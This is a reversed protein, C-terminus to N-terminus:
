EKQKSPYNYFIGVQEIGPLTDCRMIHRLRLPKGARLHKPFPLTDTVQRTAGIGIGLPIGRADCIDLCLTDRQPNSKEGSGLEIWVKAFPCQSNVRAAVVVSGSATTDIDPFIFRLSENYRWGTDPLRQYASVTRGTQSCASSAILALTALIIGLSHRM